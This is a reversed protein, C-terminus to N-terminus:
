AHSGGAVNRWGPVRADFWEILVQLQDAYQGLSGGLMDHFVSLGRLLALLRHLPTEPEDMSVGTRAYADTIRRHCRICLPVILEDDNAQGALHHMEILHKPVRILREARTEGCLLCSPNPGYRAERRRERGATLIPDGPIPRRRPPRTMNLDKSPTM